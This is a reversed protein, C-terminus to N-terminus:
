YRNAWLVVFKAWLIFGTTPMDEAEGTKLTM